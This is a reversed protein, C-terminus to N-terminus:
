DFPLADDYVEVPESDAGDDFREAMEEWTIGYPAGGSTYGAIFFFRDDQEMSQLNQRQAEQKKKLHRKRRNANKQKQIAAKEEPTKKRHKENLTELTIGKEMDNRIRDEYQESRKRVLAAFEEYSAMPALGKVSQFLQRCIGDTEEVDPMRGKELYFRLHKEYTKESIRGKQKMTLDSYKRDKHQPRNHSAM